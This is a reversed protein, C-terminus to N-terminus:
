VRLRDVDPPAAPRVELRRVAAGTHIGVSVPRDQPAQSYRACIAAALAEAEATATAPLLGVAGPTREMRILRFNADVARELYANDSENRGVILRLRPTLRFHRGVKLLALAKPDGIGEHKKLDRLRKCFNPETLLCGGAPTPYNKIGYREALEMQPKRSRGELGLLRSRDVWGRREVETEPLRLASLPRLVREEYGSERAVIKLSRGNQSMPRENLVEGTSLFTAQLRPLLGGAINLMRAHCDICPNMCSGFGHKPHNLIAVIDATFDIVHLPIRLQAAAARGAASSFFPSEFTVGHVDVGQDLLVRVALQSDLGGSLLSLVRVPRPVDTENLQQQGAM